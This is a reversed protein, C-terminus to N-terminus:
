PTREVDLGLRRRWDGVPEWREPDLRRHVYLTQYRDSYVAVFNAEVLERWGAQRIEREERLLLMDCDYRRVIEVISQETISGKWFRKAPVVTIAPPQPVGVHHFLEGTQAYAWESRSAYRRAATVLSNGEVKGSWSLARIESVHRPLERAAVLALSLSGALMWAEPRRGAEARGVRVPACYSRFAEILGAAGLLSLAIGFHLEYYYWFPRHVSHIALATLGLTVPFALCQWARRRILQVFGLGAALFTGPSGGSMSFLNLRHALADPHNRAGGHSAWMVSGDHSPSTGLILISMVACGAVWWGAAM